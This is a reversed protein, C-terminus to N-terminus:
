EMVFPALLFWLKYCSFPAPFFTRAEWNDKSQRALRLPQTPEVVSIEDAKVARSLQASTPRRFRIRVFSRNRDWEGQALLDILLVACYRSADFSSLCLRLWTGTVVSFLSPRYHRRQKRLLVSRCPVMTSAMVIFAGSLNVLSNRRSFPPVINEERQALLIILYVADYRSGDFSSFRFRLWAVTVVSFLSPRCHRRQKRLLVSRCPVM